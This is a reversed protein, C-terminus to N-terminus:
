STTTPISLARQASITTPPWVRPTVTSGPPCHVINDILHWRGYTRFTLRCHKSSRVMRSLVSKTHLAGDHMESLWDNVSVANALPSITLWLMALTSRLIALAIHLISGILNDRCRM